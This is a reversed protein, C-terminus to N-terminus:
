AAEIRAKVRSHEALLNLLAPGDILELPRGAVM